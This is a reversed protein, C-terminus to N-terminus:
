DNEILLSQVNQKNTSKVVKLNNGVGILMTVLTLIALLLSFFSGCLFIIWGYGDDLDVYEDPLGMEMVYKFNFCAVLGLVLVSMDSFFALLLFIKLIRQHTHNKFLWMNLIKIVFFTSVIIMACYATYDASEYRDCNNDSLSLDNCSTKRIDQWEELCGSGTLGYRVKRLGLYYFSLCDSKEDEYIGWQNTSFGIIIFLM